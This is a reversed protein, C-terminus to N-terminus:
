DHVIKIKLFEQMPGNDKIKWKDFIAQKVTDVQSRQPATILMNNVYIVIVVQTKGAGCLYVCPIGHAPFFGLHRLHLDLEKHWEQGSQKLGYLSKNLRYVKRPLVNAGALPKLFIEHELKANLYAQQVDISDLEWNFKATIVLITQITDRPVVPTFIEMYDLGEQQSFGQACFCAKFKYPIGNADTKVNLVLKSDVLHVNHPKDAIEWIKMSQLGEMKARIAERWHIQDPGNLAEHITPKM